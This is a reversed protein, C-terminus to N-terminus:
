SPPSCTHPLSDNNFVFHVYPFFVTTYHFNIHFMNDFNMNFYPPPFM